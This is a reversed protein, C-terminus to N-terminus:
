GARGSEEVGARPNWFLFGVLAGFLANSTGIEILHWHRVVDPFIPNPVLLVAVGALLPYAVALALAAQGRRAVLSRLLPLTFLVYLTGRVLQTPFLVAPSIQLGLGEYFAQVHPYILGGATFYLVVYALACVALRWTWGWAGYAPGAAPEDRRPRPPRGLFRTAVGALIAAVTTDRLVGLVLDSPSLVSLFLYGELAVLLVHVGLVLSFLSLWLPRGCRASRAAPWVVAAALLLAAALSPLWVRGFPPLPAGGLGGRPRFLLLDTLLYFAWVSLGGTLCALALDRTRRM